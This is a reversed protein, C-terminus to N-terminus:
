GAGRPVSLNSFAPGFDRYLSRHNAIRHWKKLIKTGASDSLKEVVKVDNWGDANPFAYYPFRRDIGRVFVVQPVAWEIRALFVRHMGDCIINAVRGNAEISEEIVPPLLGIPETQGEVDLEVFGDLSFFDIGFRHLALRLLRQTELADKLVYLQAPALQDPVIREISIAATKYIEVSRDEMLTVTRMRSLLEDMSHRRVNNIKLPNSVQTNQMVSMVDATAGVVWTPTNSQGALVKVLSATEREPRSLVWATKLGAKMAPLMDEIYSDGIMLVRSAPIGMEEVAREFFEVAPKKMGCRFSLFPQSNEVVEPLVATVAQFYPAWIDSLLGIKKGSQRFAEVTERAGLIPVAACEQARWLNAIFERQEGSVRRGGSEIAECVGEPGSFDNCMIVRALTIADAGSVGFARALEKTPSINPGMVLTSGIDFLVADVLDLATGM